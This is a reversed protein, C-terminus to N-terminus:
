IQMENAKTVTGLILRKKKKGRSPASRLMACGCMKPLQSLLALELSLSQNHGALLQAELRFLWLLAQGYGYLCM